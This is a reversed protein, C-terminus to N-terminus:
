GRAAEHWSQLQGLTGPPFDTELAPLTMGGLVVSVVGGSVAIAEVDDWGSRWVSSGGSYVIGGSDFCLHPNRNMAQRDSGQGLLRLIIRQGIMYAIGLVVGSLPVLWIDVYGFLVMSLATGLVTGGMAALVVSAFQIALITLRAPLPMTKILAAGALIMAKGSSGKTRSPTIEIRDTM